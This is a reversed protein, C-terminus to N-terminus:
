PSSDAQWALDIEELQLAYLRGVVTAVAVMDAAVGANSCLRNLLGYLKEMHAGDNGGHYRLFVTGV